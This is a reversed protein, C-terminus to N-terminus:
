KVTISELLDDAAEDVQKASAAKAGESGESILGNTILEQKLASVAEELDEDDSISKALRDRLYTPIKHKEFAESIEKSRKGKAEDAKYKALQEELAKLRAETPDEDKKQKRKGKGRSSDDDEDPDDEPDDEDPDDDKSPKKKGKGKANAWRTAEGQSEKAVEAVLNAAEEIAAEDTSDDEISGGLKATIAKLYKESLGTDKCLSKVKEFLKANM